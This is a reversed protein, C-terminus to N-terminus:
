NGNWSVPWDLTTSAKAWYLELDENGTSTVCSKNTVRVYIFAKSGPGTYKPNENTRIDKGDNQNRVWMDVSEWHENTSVNPEQGFDDFNDRVMLDLETSPQAICKATLVARFANLRGPGNEDIFTANEPHQYIPDATNVLIDRVENPTLNPNASLILAAAGAVM